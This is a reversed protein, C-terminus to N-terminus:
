KLTFLKEVRKGKNNTGVGCPIEGEWVCIFDDPASYESVFIDHGEKRKERCWQFFDRSCFSDKYEITNQYPPDCYILSNPPITLENYQSHIFQVGQINPKQGMLNRYAEAQYDRVIRKKKSRSRTWVPTRGAFGSFWIASFSCGVGCWGVLEPPFNEKHKKIKFYEERSVRPPKYGKYAIANLLAIIYKNSDGGIRNGPVKDILNAGGVFPEVYPQGPKRNQLIKPLIYPAIRNKSGVYKM